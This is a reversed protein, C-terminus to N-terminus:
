CFSGNMMCVYSAFCLQCNEGGPCGSTRCDDCQNKRVCGEPCGGRYGVVFDGECVPTSMTCSAPGPSHSCKVPGDACHDFHTCCGAGACACAQSDIFVSHCQSNATCSAEDTYVSCDPGAMPCVLAPAKGKDYCGSFTKGGACDPCGVSECQPNADCQAQTTITSCAPACAIGPCLFHQGEGKPYCASFSSGGNCDPCGAAECSPDASCSSADHHDSCNGVGLGGGGCAGLALVLGLLVSTRMGVRKALEIGREGRGM